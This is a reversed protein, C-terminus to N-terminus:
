KPCDKSKTFGAAKAEEESCFWRDSTGPSIIIKDYNYCDPIHYIRTHDAIRFNGKILCGPKKTECRNSWVGRGANKAEEASKEIILSYQSEINAKQFYAFGERTLSENILLDRIFAYALIRGFNDNKIKEIFINKNLILEELRRKADESMCGKPYEPADIEYLRIREGKNTDFTDGDIIKTALVEIRNTKKFLFSKYQKFLFFFNLSISSFIIILLVIFLYKSIRM